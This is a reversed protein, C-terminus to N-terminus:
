EVESCLDHLSWFERLFIEGGKIKKADVKQVFLERRFEVDTTYYYSEQETSYEVPAGLSRLTDILQYVKRECVNLRRALESPKGTAKRRILGDLRDILDLIEFFKFM